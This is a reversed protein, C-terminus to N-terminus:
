VLQGFVKFTHRCIPRRCRRYQVRGRSSYRETDDSSCRPCRVVTPFAVPRPADNTDLAGEDPAPQPQTTKSRTKRAM